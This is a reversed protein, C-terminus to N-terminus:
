LLADLIKGCVLADNEARHSTGTEIGFYSAVTTQKYNSLGKIRDRSLSLTDIFCINANYGLRMLTEALFNMDFQANHACIAMNGNMAECFFNILEAIVYRERPATLLMGNTIHNVKTASFSIPRGSNVLSGFMRKVEGNEFLVAGVEVIRDYRHNLGTTEVDFAIYRSINYRNIENTSIKYLRVNGRPLKNDAEREIVPFLRVTIEITKKILIIVIILWIIVSLLLFIPM